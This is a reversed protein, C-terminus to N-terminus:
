TPRTEAREKPTRVRRRCRVAVAVALTLTLSSPDLTPRQPM